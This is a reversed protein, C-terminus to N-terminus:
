PSPSCNPNPDTPNCGGGQPKPNGVSDGFASRQTSSANPLKGGSALGAMALGLLLLLAFPLM